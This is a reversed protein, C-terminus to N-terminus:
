QPPPGLRKAIKSLRRNIIVFFVLCLITPAFWFGMTVFWKWGDDRVPEVSISVHHSELLRKLLPDLPGSSAWPIVSTIQITGTDARQTAFVRNQQTDVRVSAIKDNEVLKIFEEYDTYKHPEDDARAGALTFALLLFLPLRLSM